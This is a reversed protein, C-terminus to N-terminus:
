RQLDYYRRGILDLILEVVLLDARTRLAREIRLKWFAQSRIRYSQYRRQTRMRKDRPTHSKRSLVVLVIRAEEKTTLYPVFHSPFFDLLMDLM